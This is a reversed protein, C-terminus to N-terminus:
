FTGVMEKVVGRVEVTARWNQNSSVLPRVPSCLCLTRASQKNIAWGTPRLHSVMLALRFSRESQGSCGVPEVRVRPRCIWRRVFGRQRICLCLESSCSLSGLLVDSQFGRISLVRAAEDEHLGSALIEGRDGFNNTRLDSHERFIAAAIRGNVQLTAIVFANRTEETIQAIRIREAHGVIRRGGDGGSAGGGALDADDRGVIENIWLRESEFAAL